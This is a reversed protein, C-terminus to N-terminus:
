DEKRRPRCPTAQVECRFYETSFVKEQLKSTITDSISSPTCLKKIDEALAFNIYVEGYQFRVAGTWSTLAREYANEESQAQSGWVRVSPKCRDLRNYSDYRRPEQAYILVRNKTYLYKCNEFWDCSSRISQTIWRREPDNRYQSSAPTALATLALLAGLTRHM